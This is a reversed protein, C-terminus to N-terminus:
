EVPRTVVSSLATAIRKPHGNRSIEVASSGAHSGHDMRGNGHEDVQFHNRLGQLNEQRTVLRMNELRNNLGNGDLHDIDGKPWSGHEMCWIVRHQRLRVPKKAISVRCVRYRTGRGAGNAWLKTLIPRKLRRSHLLGTEPDYIFRELLFERSIGAEKEFAKEITM